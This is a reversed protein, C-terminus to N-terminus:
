PMHALRQLLNGGDIGLDVARVDDVLVVVVDADSDARVLAKHNRNHAIGVREAKGTDLLRDGIKSAAGAVALQLDVFHHAAREGDGIAADVTRQHRRRDQVCRLGADQAHVVDDLTGIAIPPM